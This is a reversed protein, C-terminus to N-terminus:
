WRAGSTSSRRFCICCSSSPIWRRRWSSSTRRASCTGAVMRAHRAALDAPVTGSPWPGPFYRDVFKEFLAQRIKGVMRDRGQSNFSMFLGVHDDLFLHPYSHIWQTDGGHSIVRHGNYNQEYVGLMMRNLRPLMTTASTHMQEATQAQLIRQGQYEGDQLHAIMFKAMDEASSALSGAPAPVAIEYPKAPGSGVEYGQSMLPALEAPLPQRFSPHTM